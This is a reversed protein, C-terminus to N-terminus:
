LPLYSHVTVRNKYYQTLCSKIAHLRRNGEAGIGKARSGAIAIGNNDYRACILVVGCILGCPAAEHAIWIFSIQRQM